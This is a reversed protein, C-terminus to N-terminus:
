ETDMDGLCSGHALRSQLDSMPERIWSGHRTSNDSGGLEIGEWSYENANWPTVQSWIGAVMAMEVDGKEMPYLATRSWWQDCAGDGRWIWRWTSCVEWHEHWAADLELEWITEKEHEGLQEREGRSSGSSCYLSLSQEVVRELPKVWTSMSQLTADREVHAKGRM